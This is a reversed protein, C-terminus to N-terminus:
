VPQSQFIQTTQLSPLLNKEAETCEGLILHTCELILRRRILPLLLPTYVLRATHISVSSSVM